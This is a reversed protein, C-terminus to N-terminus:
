DAGGSPEQGSDFTLTLSDSQSSATISVAIFAVCVFESQRVTTGLM